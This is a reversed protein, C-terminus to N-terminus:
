INNETDHFHSLCKRDLSIGPFTLTTSDPLPTIFFFQKETDFHNQRSKTVLNFHDSETHTPSFLTGIHNYLPPTSKASDINTTDTPQLYRYQNYSCTAPISIPQIHLSYTVINTTVAHQLYRYQNYTCATPISIPQSQM